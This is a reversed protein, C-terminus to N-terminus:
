PCSPHPCLAASLASPVPLIAPDAVRQAVSRLEPPCLWRGAGAPVARGPTQRGSHVDRRSCFPHRSPPPALTVHVRSPRRSPSPARSGSRRAPCGPRPMTAKPAPGPARTSSSSSAATITGLAGRLACEGGPGEPPLGREGSGAGPLCGGSEVGCGCSRWPGPQEARSSCTLRVQGHATPRPSHHPRGDAAPRSVHRAPRVERHGRGPCM